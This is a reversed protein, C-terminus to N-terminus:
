QESTLLTRSDCRERIIEYARPPLDTIVLQSKISADLAAIITSFFSESNGRGIINCDKSIVMISALNRPMLLLHSGIAATPNEGIDAEDASWLEPHEKLLGMVALDLKYVDVISDFIYSYEDPTFTPKSADSVHDRKGKKENFDSHTEIMITQMTRDLISWIREQDSDGGNSLYETLTQVVGTMARVAPRILSAAKHVSRRVTSPNELKTNHLTINICLIAEQVVLDLSQLDLHNQARQESAAKLSAAAPTSLYKQLQNTAKLLKEQVDRKGLYNVVFTIEPYSMKWYKGARSINDWVRFCWFYDVIKQGDVDKVFRWSFNSGLVAPELDKLTDGRVYAKCGACFADVFMKIGQPGCQAMYNMIIAMTSGESHEGPFCCLRDWAHLFGLHLQLPLEKLDGDVGQVRYIADLCFNITELAASQGVIGEMELLEIESFVAPLVDPEHFTITNFAMQIHSIALSVEIATHYMDMDLEPKFDPHELTQQLYESCDAALGLASAIKGFSDKPISRYSDSTLVDCAYLSDIIIDSLFHALFGLGVISALAKNPSRQQLLSASHRALQQQANTM